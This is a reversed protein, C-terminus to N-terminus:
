VSNVYSAENMLSSSGWYKYGEKGLRLELETLLKAINRLAVTTIPNQVLFLLIIALSSDIPTCSSFIMAFFRRGFYVEKVVISIELSTLNEFIVTM